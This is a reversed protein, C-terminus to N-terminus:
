PAGGLAAEKAAASMSCSSSAAASCDAGCHLVRGAPGKGCCGACPRLRVAGAADQQVGCAACLRPRAADAEVAAAATLAELAATRARGQAAAEAQRALASIAAPEMSLPADGLLARAYASAPTGSLALLLALAATVAAADLTALRRLLAAASKLAAASSAQPDLVGAAQQPALADLSAAIVAVATAAGGADLVRRGLREPSAAAIAELAKAAMTAAKADGAERSLARVLAPITGQTSGVLNAFDNGGACAMASLARAAVATNMGSSSQAFAALAPVIGKEAALCVALEQRVGDDGAVMRSLAGVAHLASGDGAGRQLMTVLVRLAGPAEVARRALGPWFFCAHSLVFAANAALKAESSQVASLLLPFVDAGRAVGAALRPDVAAM